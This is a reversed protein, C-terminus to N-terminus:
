GPRCRNCRHRRCEPESGHSEETITRTFEGVESELRPPKRAAGGKKQRAAEAKTGGHCSGLSNRCSDARPLSLSLCDSASGTDPPLAPFLKTEFLLFRVNEQGWEGAQKQSMRKGGLHPHRLSKSHCCFPPLLILENQWGNQPGQGVPKRALAWPNASGQSPYRM